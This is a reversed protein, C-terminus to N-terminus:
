GLPLGSYFRRMGPIIMFWSPVLLMLSFLPDYFEILPYILLHYCFVCWWYYTVVNTLLFCVGLVIAKVHIRHFINEEPGLRLAIRNIFLFYAAILLGVPVLALFYLLIRLPVLIFEVQMM